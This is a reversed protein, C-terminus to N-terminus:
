NPAGLLLPDAAPAAGPDPVPDFYQVLGPPVATGPPPATGPLPQGLQDDPMRGLSGHLLAHVGQFADVRAFGSPANEGLAYPSPEEGTPMGFNQPMLLGAAALPNPQTPDQAVAPNLPTVQTVGRLLDTLTGMPDTTTQQAASLAPPPTGAVAVDAPPVPVIPPPDTAPDAAAPAAMVIALGAALGAAGVGLARLM